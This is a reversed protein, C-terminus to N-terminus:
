HRRLHDACFVIESSIVRSRVGRKSTRALVGQARGGQAASPNGFAVLTASKAQPRDASNHVCCGAEIQANSLVCASPRGCGVLARYM